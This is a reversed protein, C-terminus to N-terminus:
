TSYAVFGSLQAMIKVGVAMGSPSKRLNNKIRDLIQQTFLVETTMRLWEITRRTCSNKFCPSMLYEAFRPRPFVCETKYLPTLPLFTCSIIDLSICLNNANPGSTTTKIIPFFSMTGSVPGANNALNFRHYRYYMVSISNRFYTHVKLLTYITNVLLNVIFFFTKYIYSFKLFIQLICLNIDTNFIDIIHILFFFIINTGLCRLIPAYVDQIRFM